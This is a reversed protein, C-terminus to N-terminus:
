TWTRSGHNAQLSVQVAQNIAIARAPSAAPEHNSRPYGPFKTVKVNSSRRCRSGWGGDDGVGSEAAASRKAGDNTLSSSAQDQQQGAFQCQQSRFAGREAEVARRRRPPAVVQQGLQGERASLPQNYPPTLTRGPSM